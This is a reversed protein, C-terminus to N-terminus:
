KADFWSQSVSADVLLPVSLEMAGEMREVLLALGADAVAQPVEIVLEDHVQLLMKSKLNQAKMKIHINGMAIKIMDAASGQIPSNIANREAARRTTANRSNIDRM